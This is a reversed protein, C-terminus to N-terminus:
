RGGFMKMLSQLDMSTDKKSAVTIEKRTREEALNNSSSYFTFIGLGDNVIIINNALVAKRIKEIGSGNFRVGLELEINRATDSSMIITNAMTNVSLVGTRLAAMRNNSQRAMAEKYYGSMDNKRINFERQIKDTGTLFEPTTLEGAKWMMLRGYFGDEPRAAEFITELDNSSVPVPVQRFTLPFSVQVGDITVNAEVTRGIALPQYETLESYSKGNVTVRKEIGKSGGKDGVAEFGAVNGFSEAGQLSLFGARRPNIADVFSSIKIGNVSGQMALHTLTDKIDRLNIVTLLDSMYEQHILTDEIAVMPSIMTKGAQQSVSSTNLVNYAETAQGLIKGAKATAEKAVGAKTALTTLLSGISIISSIM